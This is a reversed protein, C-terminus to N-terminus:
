AELKLGQDDYYCIDTHCFCVRLNYKLYDPLLANPIYCQIIPGENQLGKLKASEEAERVRTQFDLVLNDEDHEDQEQEQDEEDPEEDQEDEKNDPEDGYECEGDCICYRTIGEYSLFKEDCPIFKMKNYKHIYGKTHFKIILPM